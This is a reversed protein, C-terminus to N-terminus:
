WVSEHSQEEHVSSLTELLMHCPIPDHPHRKGVFVHQVTAVTNWPIHTITHPTPTLHTPTLHIPTLHTPTNTHQHSTHSTHQHSIHQHTTYQPSLMYTYLCMKIVCVQTSEQTFECQCYVSGGIIVWRLVWVSCGGGCGGGWVSGLYGCGCGCVWVWM